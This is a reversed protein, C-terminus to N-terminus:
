LIGVIMLSHDHIVLLVNSLTLLRFVTGGSLGEGLCAPIESLLKCGHNWLNM